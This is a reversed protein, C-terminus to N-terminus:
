KPIMIVIETTMDKELNHWGPLNENKQVAVQHTSMIESMGAGAKGNYLIWSGYQDFLSWKPLQERYWQRVQEPSDNSAFRFGVDQNGLAFVSSTYIPIEAGKITGSDMDTLNFAFTNTSCFVFLILILYLYKM